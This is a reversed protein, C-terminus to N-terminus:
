IKGIDGGPGRAGMMVTIARELSDFERSNQMMAAMEGIPNVNSMELAGGVVRTQTDQRARETGTPAFLTEGEKALATRPDNFRVIKLSGAIQGKVSITGDEGIAVEGPPLTIAGGQGIVLHGSQTVLQGTADLTLGGARTYREGRPTQVALFGNGALAVDLGRGTDRISGPSLDMMGSALVGFVKKLPKIDSAL